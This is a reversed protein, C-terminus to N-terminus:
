REAARPPRDTQYVASHPFYRRRVRRQRASLVTFPFPFLPGGRPFRVRAGGPYANETFHGFGNEAFTVNMIIYVGSFILLAARSKFAAATEARRRTGCKAFIGSNVRRPFCLIIHSYSEFEGRCLPSFPLHFGVVRLRAARETFEHLIVGFPLKRRLLKAGRNRVAGPFARDVAKDRTKAVLSLDSTDRAAALATRVILRHRARRAEAMKM